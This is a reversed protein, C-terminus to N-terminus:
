TTEVPVKKRGVRFGSQQSPPYHEYVWDWASGVKDFQGAAAVEDWRQGHTEHEIFQEVFWVTKETAVVNVITVTMKITTIKKRRIREKAMLNQMARKMALPVSGAKGKATEFPNGVIEPIHAEITVMKM